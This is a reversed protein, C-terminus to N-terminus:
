YPHNLQWSKRVRGTDHLELFHAEAQHQLIPHVPTNGQTRHSPLCRKGRLFGDEFNTLNGALLRRQEDNLLIFRLTEGDQGPLWEDLVRM